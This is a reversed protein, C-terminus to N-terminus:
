FALYGNCQSVIPVSFTLTYGIHDFQLLCQFAYYLLKCKFKLCPIYFSISEGICKDGVKIFGDRCLCMFDGFLNKCLQDCRTGDACEDIDDCHRGDAAVKYGRPCSCM